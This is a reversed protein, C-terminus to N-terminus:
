EIPVVFVDPQATNQNRVPKMIRNVGATPAPASPKIAPATIIAYEATKNLDARAFSSTHSEHSQSHNQATPEQGHPPQKDHGRIDAPRHEGACPNGNGQNAAQSHNVASMQSM